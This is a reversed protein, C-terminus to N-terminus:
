GELINEEVNKERGGEQKDGAIKRGRETKKRSRWREEKGRVRGGGVKDIKKGRKREMKRMVVWKRKRGDQKKTEGVREDQSGRDSNDIVCALSGKM